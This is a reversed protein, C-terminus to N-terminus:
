FAFLCTRRHRNEISHFSRSERANWRCSIFEAIKLRMRAPTAGEAMTDKPPVLRPGLCTGNANLLASSRWRPKGRSVGAHTFRTAKAQVLSLLLIYLHHLGVSPLGLTSFLTHSASTSPLPRTKRIFLVSEKSHRQFMDNTSCSNMPNIEQLCQGHTLLFALLFGM